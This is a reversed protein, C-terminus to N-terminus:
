APTLLGYEVYVSNYLLLLLSELSVIDGVLVSPTTKQLMPLFM